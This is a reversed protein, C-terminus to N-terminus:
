QMPVVELSRIVAEFLPLHTEFTEPTGQGTFILIRSGAPIFYKLQRNLNGPLNQTMLMRHVPLGVLTVEKVEEVTGNKLYSDKSANVVAAVTTGAPPKLIAVKINPFLETDTARAHLAVVNEPKVIWSKPLKLKFAKGDFSEGGELLVSNALPDSPPTVTVATTATSQTPSGVPATSSGCGIVFPMVLILCHNAVRM